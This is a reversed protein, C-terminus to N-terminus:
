PNVAHAAMTDPMGLRSAIQVAVCGHAWLVPVGLWSSYRVHREPFDGLPSSTICLIIGLLSIWQVVSEVSSSVRAVCLTTFGLVYTSSCSLAFAYSIPPISYRGLSRFRDILLIITLLIM